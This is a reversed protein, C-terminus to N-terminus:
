ETSQRRRTRDRTAIIMVVALVLLITSGVLSWRIVPGYGFQVSLTMGVVGLTLAGAAVRLSYPSWLSLHRRTLSLVLRILLTLAIQINLFMFFVFFSREIFFLGAVLMFLSLLILSFHFGAANMSTPQDRQPRSDPLGANEQDSAPSELPAAPPKFPNENAM